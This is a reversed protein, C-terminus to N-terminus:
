PHAGACTFTLVSSYSHKHAPRYIKHASTHEHAYILTQTHRHTYTGLTQSHMKTKHLCTRTLAQTCTHLLKHTLAFTDTHKHTNTHTYTHIRALLHAHICYIRPHQCMSTHTAHKHTNAYIHKSILIITHTSTRRHGYTHTLTYSILM